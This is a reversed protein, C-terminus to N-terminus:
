GSDNKSRAENKVAYHAAAVIPKLLVPLFSGGNQVILNRKQELNGPSNLLKRLVSKFKKLNKVESPTLRINGLLTNQVCELITRILDQDCNSLISKRLKPKASQVLKLTPLHKKVSAMKM